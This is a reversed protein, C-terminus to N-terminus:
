DPSGAWVLFFVLRLGPFEWNEGSSALDFSSYVLLIGLIKM